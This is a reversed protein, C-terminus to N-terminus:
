CFAFELEPKNIFFLDELGKPAEDGYTFWRQAPTHWDIGGHLRATIYYGQFRTLLRQLQGPNWDPAAQFFPRLAERKVIKVAAEAKGNAEPYYPPIRHHAIGRVTLFDTFAHQSDKWVSTFTTGNDTVIMQPRGHEEFLESLIALM